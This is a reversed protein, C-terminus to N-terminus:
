QDDTEAYKEEPQNQSKLFKQLEATSGIFMTNNTTANNSADKKASKNRDLDDRDRQLNMLRDTLDSSTKLLGALVEFTRPHETENALNMLSDLAEEAKAILNHLTERSKQYDESADVTLEINEAKQKVDKIEKQYQETLATTADKKKRDFM